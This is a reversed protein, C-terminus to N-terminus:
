CEVASEAWFSYIYKGSVQKGTIQELARAYYELQTRYKEKLEEAGGQPVYDTKYDLLVLKGDEEFYCDIIGQLVTTEKGYVDAPLDKFIEICKIELNFPVERYLKEAQLLRKGLNSELFRYIKDANVAQMQTETLLERSVMDRIQQRIGNRDVAGRFDIHQMIFHMISGKEAASLTTKEELFRPKKHLELSAMPLGQGDMANYYEESYETSFYRKLESVTLKVPLEEARQYPYNWELRGVIKRGEESAEAGFSDLGLAAQSDADSDVEKSQLVAERSWLNVEWNSDDKIATEPREIGSIEALQGAPHRM